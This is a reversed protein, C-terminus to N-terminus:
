RPATTSLDQTHGQHVAIKWPLISQTVYKSSYYMIKMPIDINFTYLSKPTCWLRM